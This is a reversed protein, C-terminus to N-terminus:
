LVNVDNMTWDCWEFINLDFAIGFDSILLLKKQIAVCFTQWTFHKMGFMWCIIKLKRISKPRMWNSRCSNSIKLQISLLLDSTDYNTICLAFLGILMANNDMWEIKHVTSIKTNQNPNSSCFYIVFFMGFVDVFQYNKCM